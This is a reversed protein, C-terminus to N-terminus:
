VCRGVPHWFSRRFQRRGACSQCDTISKWCTVSWCYPFRDSCQGRCWRSVAQPRLCWCFLFCFPQSSGGGSKRALVAFAVRHHRPYAWGLGTFDVGWGRRVSWVRARGVWDCVLSAEGSCALLFGGLVNCIDVNESNDFVQVLCLPMTSSSALLIVPVANTLTHSQKAKLCLCVQAIMLVCQAPCLCFVSGSVPQERASPGFHGPVGPGWIAVFPVRDCDRNSTKTFSIGIGSFGLFDHFIWGVGDLLTLVWM